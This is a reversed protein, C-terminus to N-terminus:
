ICDHKKEPNKPCDAKPDVLDHISMMRIDFMFMSAYYDMNGYLVPNSYSKLYIEVEKYLAAFNAKATDFQPHKTFLEMM